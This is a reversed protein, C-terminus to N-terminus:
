WGRHNPCACGTVVVLDDAGSRAVEETVWRILPRGSIEALLKNDTGFRRSAGGALVIAGIKV